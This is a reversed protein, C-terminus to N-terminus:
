KRSIFNKFGNWAGVRQIKKERVKHEQMKFWNLVSFKFSDLLTIPGLPDTFGKLPLGVWAMGSEEHISLLPQKLLPLTFEEKKEEKPPVDSALNQKDNEM